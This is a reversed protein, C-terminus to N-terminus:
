KLVKAIQEAIRKVVPVSVSNGVQKYADDIKISNPFYYDKSFGQFDLAERLTLRRIGHWDRLVVANHITNMSATLTPCLEPNRLNRVSGNYVRFLKHSNGIFSNLKAYM